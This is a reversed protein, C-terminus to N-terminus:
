RCSNGSGCLRNRGSDSDVCCVGMALLTTELGIWSSPSIDVLCWWLDELHRGVRRWELSCVKGWGVSCVSGGVWRPLSLSVDIVLSQVNILTQMPTDMEKYSYTM